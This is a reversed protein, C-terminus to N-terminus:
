DKNAAKATAATAAKRVEELFPEKGLSGKALIKRVSGSLIGLEKKTLDKSTLVVVPVAAWKSHSRMEELFEFGDMVPMMLDLLIVEPIAKELHELGERGNTAQLVTWGESTLNSELSRRTGEDDDIVLVTTHDLSVYKQLLGVLKKRGVPKVLYDTAGLMYGLDRDDSVSQIVVPIDCLEDDAKLASLVSWGDVKPMLIDLIILEPKLERARKLGEAGNSATVPRMGEAILVRTLIDRIAPDDDVILVTNKRSTLPTTAEEGPTEMTLNGSSEAPLQLNLPLRITFTSGKGAESELSVDGKMLDTFRRIIALGLGTGGYKRNTSSDAQSFPQFLGAIQEETMGIGSDAIEFVIEENEDDHRARLDIQGQETFKSANSLLNYLVQKIKTADGHIDGVEPSIKIQLSNNNKKVLPDVMEAVETILNPVNITETYIEMKGAEVKSLDLVGNVLELLHKGAGRIRALDDTFHPLNQEEAEETLLESYMIVANLPTRLEHSMNALFESKSENAEEALKKAMELDQQTRVRATINTFTVVAGEIKGDDDKLPFSSYEVPISSGDLRWFIEDDVRCGQGSISSKYISCEKLPFATGEKTTHHVLDHMNKGLFDETAGGLTMAAAKNIFTCKGKTDIGYIGEGTSELLRDNYRTLSAKERLHRASETASSKKLRLHRAFLAYTGLVTSLAVLTSLLLTLRVEKFRSDLEHTRRTLLSEEADKIQQVLDRIAHAQFTEQQLLIAVEASEVDPTDFVSVFRRMLEIKPGILSTLEVIRAQQGPDDLTLDLLEDSRSLTGEAAANFQKRYIEDRSILYGRAASEAESLEVMLSENRRLVEQTHDVWDATQAFRKLNNYVFLSSAILVISAAALLLPVFWRNTSGHLKPDFNPM